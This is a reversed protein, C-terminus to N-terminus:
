YYYVKDPAKSYILFIWSVSFGSLFDMRPSPDPLGTNFNIRRLPKTIHQSFDASIAFNIYGQNGFYRFGVAQRIGWGMTLKDYGKQYDGSISPVNGTTANVNIKHRILQGGLEVFIGSNQNLRSIVPFIKGLSLQATWGSQLLRFDSLFGEDNILLGSPTVLHSLLLTDKVKGGFLGHAGAILYFNNHLKHAIDTGILSSYAFREAMDAGPIM